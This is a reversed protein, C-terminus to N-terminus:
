VDRPKGVCFADKRERFFERERWPQCGKVRSRREDRRAKKGVCLSTLRAATCAGDCGSVARLQEKEGGLGDQDEQHM